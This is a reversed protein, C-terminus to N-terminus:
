TMTPASTLYRFLSLSHSTRDPISAAFLSISFRPTSEVAAGKNPRERGKGEERAKEGRKQEVRHRLRQKGAPRVSLFLSCPLLLSSTRCTSRSSSELLVLQFPFFALVRTPILYFPIVRADVSLSLAKVFPFLSFRYFLRLLSPFPFSCNQGYHGLVVSDEQSRSNFPHLFLLDPISDLVGGAPCSSSSIVLGFSYSFLSFYSM